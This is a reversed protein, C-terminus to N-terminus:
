DHRSEHKAAPVNKPSTASTKPAGLRPLYSFFFLHSYLITSISYMLTSSLFLLLYSCLITSNFLKLCQKQEEAGATSQHWELAKSLLLGLFNNLMNPFMEKYM